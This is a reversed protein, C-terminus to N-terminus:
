LSRGIGACLVARSLQSPHNAGLPRGTRVRSCLLRRLIEELKGSPGLRIEIPTQENL